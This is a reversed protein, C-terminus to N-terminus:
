QQNLYQYHEPRLHEYVGRDPKAFGDYMHRYEDVGIKDHTVVVVPISEDYIYGLEELVADVDDPFGKIDEEVWDREGKKYGYKVHKIDWPHRRQYADFYRKIEYRREEQSMRDWNEHQEKIIEFAGHMREKLEEEDKKKINDDLCLCGLIYCIFLGIGVPWCMVTLISCFGIAFPLACWEECRKKNNNAM